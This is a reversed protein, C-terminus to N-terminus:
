TGESPQPLSALLERAELVFPELDKIFELYEDACYGVGYCDVIPKLVERLSAIQISLSEYDNLMSSVREATQQSIHLAGSILPKGTESDMLWPAHEYDWNRWGLTAKDMKEAEAQDPFKEDWYYRPTHETQKM